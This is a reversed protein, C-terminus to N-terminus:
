VRTFLITDGDKTKHELQKAGWNNKIVSKIKDKELPATKTLGMVSVSLGNNDISNVTLDINALLTKKELKYTYSKKTQTDTIQLNGNSAKLSYPEITVSEKIVQKVIRVLDQETLRIIKKM